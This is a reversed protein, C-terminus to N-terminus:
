LSPAHALQLGSLMLGDYALLVELSETEKLLALEANVEDHLGLGCTVGTIYTKKPKVQRVLDLAESLSYHAVHSVRFLVDIVFVEITANVLLSLSAEPMGSCDSIYVFPLHLCPASPEEVPEAQGGGFAFGLSIYSGGHYVPFSRVPLRPLQEIRPTNDDIMTWNLAAVKRKMVGPHGEAYEPPEALYPFARCVEAITKQNSVVPMTGGATTLRFGLAKGTDPDVVREHTQLERVDDLGLIADAHGHTLLIADVQKIGYLPFFTTVATYM